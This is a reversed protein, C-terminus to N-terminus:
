PKPARSLEVGIVKSVQDYPMKVTVECEDPYPGAPSKTIDNIYQPRGAVVDFVDGPGRVALWAATLDWSQRGNHLVGFLDYAARVPNDDPTPILSPGTGINSGVYTTWMIKTPWKSLLYHDAPQTNAMVVLERVKKRVLDLGSLDSVSDPQSQILDQINEMTGISCIVVSGDPASALAKRYVDVGVPMKNDDPFDPAFKQRIAKAYSSGCVNVTHYGDPPAPTLKSIMTAPAKEGYSQGIPISPHGYWTNIAQITACTSQDRNITDHVCALLKCEGQDMFDNLLALAGVDDVDSDLDTDLIVPIPWPPQTDPEALPQITIVHRQARKMVYIFDSFTDQVLTDWPAISSLDKPHDMFAKGSNREHRQQDYASHTTIEFLDSFPTHVFEKPLNIGAALQASTFDHNENGWTVKAHACALNKVTLIYRNLEDDFPFCKLINPDEATFNGWRCWWFPYLRGEMTITNHEFSFWQEPSAQISGSALDNVTISGIDGTCGLAKLFAYARVLSCPSGPLGSDFVYKDGYLSKAKTMAAMTAGFVDAYIVGEQAAVDKDIAALEGLTKNLADAQAPDNHYHFSDVCQPSGVIITRVGSKKLADVLDTQAKRYAAASSDDFPKGAVEGMGFNTMVITPKFPLLDTDIRALFGAATSASWGFEEVNIKRAPSCILLYAEIYASYSPDSTGDNCIALRDDPHILPDASATCTLALLFAPILRFM